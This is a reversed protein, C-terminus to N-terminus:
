LGIRVHSFSHIIVTEVPVAQAYYKKAKMFFYSLNLKHLFSSTANEMVKKM